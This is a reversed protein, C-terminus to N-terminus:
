RRYLDQFTHQCIDKRKLYLDILNLPERGLALCTNKYDVYNILQEENYARCWSFDSRHEVTLPNFILEGINNFYFAAVGKSGRERYFEFEAIFAITEISFDDDEDESKDLFYYGERDTLINLIIINREFYSKTENHLLTIRM